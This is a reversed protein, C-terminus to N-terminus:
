CPAITCAVLDTKANFHNLIRRRPRFINSRFMRSEFFHTGSQGYHRWEAASWWQVYRRVLFDAKLDGFGIMAENLALMAWANEYGMGWSNHASQHAALYRVANFLVQNAADLKALVYM